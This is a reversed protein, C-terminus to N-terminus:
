FENRGRRIGAFVGCESDHWALYSYINRSRYWERVKWRRRTTTTSFSLDLAACKIRRTFRLVVVPGILFTFRLCQATKTKPHRSNPSHIHPRLFHTRNPEVVFFSFTTIPLFIGFYWLYIMALIAPPLSALYKQILFPYINYAEIEEHFNIWQKM